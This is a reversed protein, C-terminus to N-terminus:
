GNAGGDEDEPEVILTLGDLGRVRVRAGPGLPREARANWREGHCRVHGASGAWELVEAPMGIMEEAGSVVARQRVKLAAGVAFVLFAGSSLAAVAILPWAISLDPVGEGPEFLYLSGFIFAVIGGIGLVGLGPAFAEAVMLGLGLLLLAVGVYSIPLVALAGLGVLLSIGGIIGPVLLGPNLFEFVLGYFGVLLLIYAVNPNTVVALLQMRWDPEIVVVEIGATELKRGDDDGKLVFGDLQAILDDVDRAVIDIVGQELADQAPLSVAARVAKEAWDANRGRLYALSRIYAVADNIVKRDMTDAPPPVGEGDEEDDDTPKPRPPERGPLGPPTGGVRVPTAAGLNTGPAMAAVHSAYMMYTGASAARAGGPAVFTVVPAESALMAQIIERMSSALGGPTDLRLIVLAAAEERARDLGRRIFDNTAVGIPGKVDLLIAVRPAEARGWGTTLISLVVALVLAGGAWGPWTSRRDPDPPAAFPRTTPQVDLM